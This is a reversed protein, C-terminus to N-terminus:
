RRRRRNKKGVEIIYVFSVNQRDEGHRAPNDIVKLLKAVTGEYGTEELVERLIGQELTEDRNLFGGILGYKGGNSLHPARKVLLVSDRAANLVIGDVVVHRLKADGGDEFTCIIM